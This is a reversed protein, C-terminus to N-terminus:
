SKWLLQTTVMITPLVQQDPATGSRHNNQKRTDATVGVVPHWPKPSTFHTSETRSHNITLTLIKITSFSMMLIITSIKCRLIPLLTTERQRMSRLVTKPILGRDTTNWMFPKPLSRHFVQVRRTDQLPKCALSAKRSCARLTM